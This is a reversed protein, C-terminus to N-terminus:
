KAALAVLGVQVLSLAILLGWALRVLLPSCFRRHLALVACGVLSM